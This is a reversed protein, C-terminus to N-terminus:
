NLRLINLWEYKENLTMHIIKKTSYHIPPTFHGIFTFQSGTKPFIPDFISSRSFTTRYSINKFGNSFGPVLQRNKLNYQQISYIPELFTTM